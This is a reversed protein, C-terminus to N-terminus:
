KRVVLKEKDQHYGQLWGYWWYMMDFENTKPHPNEGYTKGEIYATYGEIIKTTQIQNYLLSVDDPNMNIENSFLKPEYCSHRKHCRGCHWCGCGQYYDIRFKDCSHLCNAHRNTDTKIM